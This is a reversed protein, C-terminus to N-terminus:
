VGPIAGVFLSGLLTMVLTMGIMVGIFSLVLVGASKLLSGFRHAEDVYSLLSWLLWGVFAIFAVSAVLPFVLGVVTIGTLLVFSVIQLLTVVTLVDGLGGQGGMQRGVWYVVYIALMAQGMRIIAALVPSTFVPSTLLLQGFEDDPIPVIRLLMSMILSTLVVVLALAIWVAREQVGLAIAQRAADRPSRLATTFIPVLVATNM